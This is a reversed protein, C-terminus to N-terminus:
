WFKGPVGVSKILKRWARENKTHGYLLEISDYMELAVCTVAHGKKRITRIILLIGDTPFNQKIRLM